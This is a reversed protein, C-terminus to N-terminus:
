SEARLRWGGGAGQPQREGARAGDDLDDNVGGLPVELEVAAAAAARTPPLSGLPPPQIATRPPPPPLLLLLLLLFLLLLLAPHVLPQPSRM